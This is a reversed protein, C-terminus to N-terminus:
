TAVMVATVEPDEEVYLLAAQHITLATAAVVNIIEFFDVGNGKMLAIPSDVGALWSPNTVDLLALNVNQGQESKRVRWVKGAANAEQSVIRAGIVKGIKGATAVIKVLQTAAGPAAAEAGNVWVPANKAM